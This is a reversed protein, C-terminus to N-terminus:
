LRLLVAEVAEWLRLVDPNPAAGSNNRTFAEQCLEDWCQLAYREPFGNQYHQSLPVFKGYYKAVGLFSQM